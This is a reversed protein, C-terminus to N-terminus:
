WIKSLAYCIVKGVSISPTNRKSIVPRLKLPSKHFKVSPRFVPIGFVAHSLSRLVFQNMRDLDDLARATMPASSSMFLRMSGFEDSYKSAVLPAILGEYRVKIGALYEEEVGVIFEVYRGEALATDIFEDIMAAFQERYMLGMVKGKDGEVLTISRERKLFSNTVSALHLIYQDMRTVVNRDGVHGIYAAKLEEHEFFKKVTAYGARELNDLIDEWALEKEQRCLLSFSPLMFKPGLSLLVELETPIILKTMNRFSGPIVRVHRSIIPLSLHSPFGGNLVVSFGERSTGAAYQALINRDYLQDTYLLPVQFVRFFCLLYNSM